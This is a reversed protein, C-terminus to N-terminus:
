TPKAPVPIVPASHLEANYDKPPTNKSHSYFIVSSTNRMLILM